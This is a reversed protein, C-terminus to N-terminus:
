FGSIALRVTALRERSHITNDSLIDLLLVPTCGEDCRWEEVKESCVDQTM